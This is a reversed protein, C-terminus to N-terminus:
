DKPLLESAGRGRMSPRRITLERWMLHLRARSNLHREEAFELLTRGAIFEMVFYPQPGFGTDAIGAEYTQAIGPHQLRSLANAEQAFRRLLEANVFGSKIVKPAVIRHPNEQEALYVSGM